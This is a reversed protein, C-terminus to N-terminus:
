LVPQIENRLRRILYIAVAVFGILFGVTIKEMMSIKVNAIISEVDEETYRLHKNKNHVYNDLNINSNLVRVNFRHTRNNVIVTISQTTDNISYSRVSEYSFNYADKLVSNFYILATSNNSSTIIKITIQSYVFSTKNEKAYLRIASGERESTIVVEDIQHQEEGRVGALFIISFIILLTIGVFVDIWEEAIRM